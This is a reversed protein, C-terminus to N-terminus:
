DGDLANFGVTVGLGPAVDQVLIERANEIMMKLLAIREAQWQDPALEALEEALAIARQMEGLWAQRAWQQDGPLSFGADRYFDVIGHLHASVHLFTLGSRWFPARRPAVRDGSQLMPALEAAEIFQLGGALAKVIENNRETVNRYYPNSDGPALFHKGFAGDPQWEQQVALAMASVNAAVARAHRCVATSPRANQAAGGYLVLELAPLGQVAVSHTAIDKGTPGDAGDALLPRMQRVVLGRPDPWFHLREYRNDEQLPGFRLFALRSWAALLGAFEDHTRVPTAAGAVADNGCRADVAVRMKEAAAAFGATSPQVFAAMVQRAQAAPDTAAVAGGGVNLVGAVGLGAALVARRVGGITLFPIM